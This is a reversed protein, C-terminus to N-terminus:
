GTAGRRRRIRRKQYLMAGIAPMLLILIYGMGTANVEHHSRGGLGVSCGGGDDEDAKRPKPPQSQNPDPLVEVEVVAPASEDQGDDVVLEFELLGETVAYFGAVAEDGNELMVQPGSTQSWSYTLFGIGDPDFSGTGDLVVWAGVMAPPVDAIDAVPAQNSASEVTVTVTDPASELAGDSVVLRFRYLGVVLADFRAQV